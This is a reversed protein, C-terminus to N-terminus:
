ENDTVRRARVSRSRLLSDSDESFSEPVRPGGLTAFAKRTSRVMIRKASQIGVSNFDDSSKRESVVFTSSRVVGPIRGISVWQSEIVHQITPRDRPDRALMQRLLDQLSSSLPAPIDIEAERIQHFLEITNDSTWPLRATVITYLVIGLSWIDAKKGDYEIGNLIEPPAYLPSGCPTQLLRKSSDAHCLGFDALKVVMRHDLLFNEPKLDRHAIDKDHIYAVAEVIQRFIERAQREQVLGNKAIFTLLDGHSCYEMVIFIFEPGFVIEEFKVIHPHNFCPLLRAEQEFRNFTGEEVLFQRSVVKVAFLGKSVVNTALVVVSSGGSGITRVYEYRGFRRPVHVPRGGAMLLDIADDDSM